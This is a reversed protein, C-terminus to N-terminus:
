VEERAHRVPGAGAPELEPHDTAISRMVHLRGRADREYFSMRRLPPAYAHLSVAPGTGAGYVDHVLGPPLSTISGAARRYRSWWGDPDVRVEALEGQVVAFAAASPGHDHLTTAHGPLWSLLWVEVDRDSALRTWWRQDGLAPVRLASQWADTDAAVARVVGVLTKPTMAGTRLDIM